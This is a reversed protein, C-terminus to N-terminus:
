CAYYVCTKSLMNQSQDIKARFLMSCGTYLEAYQISYIGRTSGTSEPIVLTVFEEVSSHNPQSWPGCVFDTGPDIRNLVTNLKEESIAMITLKQGTIHGAPHNGARDPCIVQGLFGIVVTWSHTRRPSKRSQGSM